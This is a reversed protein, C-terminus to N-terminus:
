VNKPGGETRVEFRDNRTHIILDTQGEVESVIEAGFIQHAPAVLPRKKLVSNWRNEEECSKMGIVVSRPISGVLDIIRLQFLGGPQDIQRRSLQCVQLGFRSEDF